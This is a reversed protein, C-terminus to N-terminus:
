NMTETHVWARHFCILKTPSFVHSRAYARLLKPPMCGLLIQDLIAEFGNKSGEKVKDTTSIAEVETM